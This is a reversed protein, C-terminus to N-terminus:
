EARQFKRIVEDVGSVYQPPYFASCIEGTTFRVISGADTLVTYLNGDKAWEATTIAIIHANGTRRGDRTPLQAGLVLQGDTRSIAWEPLYNANFQEVAADIEEDTM